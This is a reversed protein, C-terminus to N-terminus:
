MMALSVMEDMDEFEVRKLAMIKHDPDMVKYVKSSGGKGVVQLAQYVTGNVMMTALATPVRPAEKAKVTAKLPAPAPKAVQAPPAPKPAPPEPKPTVAPKPVAKVPESKHTRGFSSTMEPAQILSRKSAVQKPPTIQVVVAKKEEVPAPSPSPAVTAAPPEATSPAVVLPAPAAPEETISEPVWPMSLPEEEPISTPTEDVISPRTVRMAGGRLKSGGLRLGKRARKSKSLSLLAVTQDGSGSASAEKIAPMVSVVPAVPPVPPATVTAPEKKEVATEVAAPESQKAETNHFGDKSVDLPTINRRRTSKKFTIIDATEDLTDSTGSSTSELSGSRDESSM